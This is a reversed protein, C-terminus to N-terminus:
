GQTRRVPERVRFQLLKHNVHRRPFRIELARQHLLHSQLRRTRNPPNRIPRARLNSRTEDEMTRNPRPRQGRSYRQPPPKPLGHCRCNSWRIIICLDKDNELYFIGSHINYFSQLSFPRSKGVYGAGVCCINKVGSFGGGSSYSIENLSGSGSRQSHRRGSAEEFADQLKLAQLVPSFTLSGDPTTPATSIDLLSDESDVTSAPQPFM